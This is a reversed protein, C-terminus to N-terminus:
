GVARVTARAARWVSHVLMIMLGAAFVPGEWRRPALVTPVSGAALAVWALVGLVLGRDALFLHLVTKVGTHIAQWLTSM